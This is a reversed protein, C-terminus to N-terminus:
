LSINEERAPATGHLVALRMIKHHVCEFNGLECRGDPKVGGCPGNIQRKPCTKYCIFEDDPLRCQNCHSCGCFLKKLLTRSEPHQRDAHQFLFKSVAYSIKEGTKPEEPIIENMRPAAEEPYTRKLQRDYLYFSDASPAMEAKALHSNYAALWDQFGTFETFGYKIREAVIRMRDPTDAGAIQIASCGLLRCGVAQLELRRYQAAEFQARSFRLEAALIKEMDKSINVGAMRGDLIADVKEPTLLVLRAIVPLFINRERLYWLLSQLKLMDWNAQTVVFRSGVAIKKMLKAYQAMLSYGTYQMPNAVCGCFFDGAQEFENITQVSDAFFTRRMERISATKGIDGGAIALNFIHNHKALQMLEAKEKDDLGACSLYVLHRHRKEPSLAAAYEIARWSDPNGYCDTIALSCNLDRIGNVATELFSLREAAAAPDNDRGPSAHEFLVAFEGRDLLERFRNKGKPTFNLASQMESM